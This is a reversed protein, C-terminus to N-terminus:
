APPQLKRILEQADTLQQVLQMIAVELLSSVPSFIEKLPRKVPTWQENEFREVVVFYDIGPAHQIVVRLQEGQLTTHELVIQPPAPASEVPPAAKTSQKQAM